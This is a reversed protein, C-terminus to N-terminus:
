NRQLLRYERYDKARDSVMSRSGLVKYLNDLRIALAKLNFRM